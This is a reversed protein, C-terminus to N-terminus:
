FATVIVLGGNPVCVSVSAELRGELGLVLPSGGFDKESTLRGYCRNRFGLIERAFWKHTDCVM